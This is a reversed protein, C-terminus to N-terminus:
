CSELVLGQLYDEGYSELLSAMFAEAEEMTEFERSRFDEGITYSVVIRAVM